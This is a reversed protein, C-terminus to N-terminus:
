SMPTYENLPLPASHLISADLLPQLAIKQMAAAVQGEVALHILFARIEPAVMNAPHRKHHFLIFRRAWQVYVKETRISRHKLHLVHRMQDVLETKSEM